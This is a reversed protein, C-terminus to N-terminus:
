VGGLRRIKDNSRSTPLSAFTGFPPAWIVRSAGASGVFGVHSSEAERRGGFVVGSLDPGEEMLALGRGAGEGADLLCIITLSAQAPPTIGYMLNESEVPFASV